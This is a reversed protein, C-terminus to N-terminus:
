PTEPTARAFVHRFSRTGSGSRPYQARFRAPCFILRGGSPGIFFPSGSSIVTERQCSGARGFGISEGSVSAIILFSSVGSAAITTVAVSSCGCFSTAIDAFGKIRAFGKL